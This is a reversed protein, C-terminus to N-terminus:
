TKVCIKIPSEVGFNESSTHQCVHCKDVIAGLKGDHETIKELEFNGCKKCFVVTKKAFIKKEPEHRVEEACNSCVPMESERNGKKTEIVVKIYPLKKPGRKGSCFYCVSHPM